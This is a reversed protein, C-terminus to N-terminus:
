VGAITRAGVFVAAAAWLVSIPVLSRRGILPIHEVFMVTTLLPMWALGHGAVAMVAMLPGSSVVAYGGQKLGLRLCGADGRWGFAPPVVPGHCLALGRRKLPTLQWVAAVSLAAIVGVSGGIALQGVLLLVVAGVATWVLLYAAVFVALHRWRLRRLSNFALQRAAPVITPGMMALSM